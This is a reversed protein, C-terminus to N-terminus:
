KDSITPSLKQEISDDLLWLALRSEKADEIIRTSESEHVLESLLAVSETLASRIFQLREDTM